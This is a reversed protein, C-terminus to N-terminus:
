KKNKERNNQERLETVPKLYDCPILRKADVESLGVTEGTAYIREKYRFLAVKVVKFKPM